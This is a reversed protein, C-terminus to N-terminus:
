KNEKTSVAKSIRRRVHDRALFHKREQVEGLHSIVTIIITTMITISSIM